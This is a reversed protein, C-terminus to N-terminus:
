ILYNKKKKYLRDVDIYLKGFNYTNTLKTFDHYTRHLQYNIQRVDELEIKVPLIVFTDPEMMDVDDNDDNDNDTKNGYLKLYMYIEMKGLKVSGGKIQHVFIRFQFCNYQSSPICLVTQINHERFNFSMKIKNNELLHSLTFQTFLACYSKIIECVDNCGIAIQINDYQGHLVKSEHYTISKIKWSYTDLVSTELINLETGFQEKSQKDDFKLNILLINYSNSDYATNYVYYSKNAILRQVADTRYYARLYFRASM